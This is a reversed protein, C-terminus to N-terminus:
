VNCHTVQLCATAVTEEFSNIVPLNTTLELSLQFTEKLFHIGQKKVQEYVVFRKAKNEQENESLEYM